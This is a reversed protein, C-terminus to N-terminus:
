KVICWDEALMDTQSALWGIVLSGDAAKMDIHPCIHVLGDRGSVCASNELKEQLEPKLDYFDVSSGEQMYIFMGKGNWGKRAVKKGEKLAEIAEGFNMVKVKREYIKQTNFFCRWKATGKM